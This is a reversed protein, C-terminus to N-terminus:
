IYAAFPHKGTARAQANVNRVVTSALIKGDVVLNVTISQEGGQGGGTVRLAVRDAIKDMWWTNRDLPLVAERGAEGGGLLTNGARGFIQAGNLIAGAANWKISFGKPYRFERDFVTTYGWDISIKPLKLNLKSTISSIGLKDALSGTWGKKVNASFSLVKNSLSDKWTTLRSQFSIVKNSLSDKWTTLRSQFSIVKNSLSDKWTTLKSQFSIVKNSLSEKWTTLKTQFSVVKNGLSDKWTTLKSQFSIVKDRLADKWKTLKATVKVEFSGSAHTPLLNGFFDTGDFVKKFGESIPTFVHEKIWGVPDRLPKTIGEFVGLMINKGLSQIAKNQSPSHIDFTNKFGEVFPVFVNEWLWTGINAIGRVIGLLIGALIDGGCQETCESITKGLREFAGGFMSALASAIGGAASGLLYYLDSWNIGGWMDVINKKIATGLGSWDLTQVFGTAGAIGGNIFGAIKSGFSTDSLNISDIGKNIASALAAGVGFFDGQNAAEQIQQSLSTLWTPVKGEVPSTTASSGGGGNNSANLKNIEDFGALQRNFEKQASGAGGIADAASNAGDAVTTWGSGFLNSILSGIANSVGVIYPMLVSLANTVVNIAPALAQGLSSKLTNVQAQLAANQSVYQNVVSRLEGFISKVLRLGVSVLGIRRISRVLREIGATSKGSQRGFGLVTSAAGKLKGLAAKVAAGLKGSKHTVEETAEGADDLSKIYDNLQKKLNRLLMENGEFGEYGWSFGAKKLAAQEAELERIQDTLSVIAANKGGQAMAKKLNGLSLASNRLANETQKAFSGTAGSGKKMGSTLGSIDAGVRVIMNKIVAM